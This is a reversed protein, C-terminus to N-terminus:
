LILWETRVACVYFKSIHSTYLSKTISVTRTYHELNSIRFNCSIVPSFWSVGRELDWVQWVKVSPMKASIIRCTVFAEVIECSWRRDLMIWINVVSIAKQVQTEIDDRSPRWPAFLMLQRIAGPLATSKTAKPAAILLVSAVPSESYHSWHLLIETQRSVNVAM